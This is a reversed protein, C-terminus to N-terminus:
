AGKEQLTRRMSRQFVEDIYRENEPSVRGAKAVLFERYVDPMRHNDRAKSDIDKMHHSQPYLRYNHLPSALVGAKQSYRLYMLMTATDFRHSLALRALHEDLAAFDVRGFLAGSQLKGWRAGMFRFYEPFLAGFGENEIIIDKELVYENQVAGSPAIVFNSRCAAYDLGHANVFALMEELFTPAYDDDADLVCLWDDNGLHRALDLVNKRADLTWDQNRANFFPAVRKDRAAYDRIIEGTGDTSGNDCIHYAFDGCTQGLV